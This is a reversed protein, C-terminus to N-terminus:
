ELHVIEEISRIKEKLLPYRKLSPDKAIISEAMEKADKILDYDTFSALKFEVYGSQKISFTAGPGRLSLDYEALKFGDTIKSLMKLREITQPNKSDTFLMFFSQEGARGIRGRLQHLQALGFRDANEIMMITLQPIDIGVEVVTTAILIKTLGKRFNDLVMKKEDANIKGHLLGVRFEKFIDKSLREYEEEVAKIGFKDNKLIAPCIVFAQKGKKIKERIFEYADARKKSPVLFSKVKREGKPMDKLISIDLDGYVTLAFTRPIPTATMSLFHPTIKQNKEKLAKRQKVGFRHQEDIVSLGLNNFEIKEAILSHTGILIDIKGRKLKDLVLKKEKAKSSSTLIEINLKFDKLFSKIKSFHEWALIETPVMLVGQYGTCSVLFLIITAVITKGSGVDGELLRNMPRNKEIDKIIQWVAKKQSVTLKFPLNDIMKKALGLDIKISPSNEQRLKERAVVSSFQPVFVEDFSLRQRAKLLYDNNKPFHINLLADKLDLFNKAKKIEESLFDAIEFESLLPKILSRLWKSSIRSNEHYVPSIRGLHKTELNQGRLVEYEPNKLFTKGKDLELKGALLINDQVNINKTLYSQNFWVVKLTGTEDSVLAETIFFRRNRTHHNKIQSVKVKVSIKQNLKVDSIKVINSFDRYVRPYYFILDEVTVIGLKQLNKSRYEGVGKLFRVEKNLDIM